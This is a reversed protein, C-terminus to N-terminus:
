LESEVGLGPFKQIGFTYGHFFFSLNSFCQKIELSATNSNKVERFRLKKMLLAVLNSQIAELTRQQPNCKVIGQTESHEVRLAAVADKLLTSALSLLFFPRIFIAISSFLLLM